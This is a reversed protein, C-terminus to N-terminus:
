WSVVASVPVLRLMGDEYLKSSGAILTMAKENREYVVRGPRGAVQEPRSGPRSGAGDDNRLPWNDAM